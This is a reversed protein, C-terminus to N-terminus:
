QDEGVVADLMYREWSVGGRIDHAVAWFLHQGGERPPLWDVRYPDAPTGNNGSRDVDFEGGATFWSIYTREDVTRTEEFEVKEYEQFSDQTLFARIAAVDRCETGKCKFTGPNGGDVWPLVDMWNANGELFIGSLTSGEKMQLLDIEPNTNPNETNLSVDFTKFAVLGEDAGATTCLGELSTPDELGISDFNSGFLDEIASSMEIASFGDGACLLIIATMSLFDREEGDDPDGNDPVLLDLPEGDPGPYYEPVSLTGMDVVGRHDAAAFELPWIFPPLDEMSSGSSSPTLLGPVVIGGAVVMRGGGTPDAVLARLTTTGGPNIEPPDTQVALIRFKTVQSISELDNACGTLALACVAIVALRKM